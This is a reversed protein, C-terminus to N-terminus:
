KNLQHTNLTYGKQKYHQYHVRATALLNKENPVIQLLRKWSLNDKPESLSLDIIIPDTMQKAEPQSTISLEPKTTTNVPYHPIFSDIPSIWLQQSLRQLDEPAESLIKLSHGQQYAKAALQCVFPLSEQWSDATLLYFDIQRTM